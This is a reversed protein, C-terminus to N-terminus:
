RPAAPRARRSRRTLQLAQSRQIGTEIAALCRNFVARRPDAPALMARLTEVHDALQWAHLRPMDIVYERHPRPRMVLVWRAGELLTRMEVRMAVPANRDLLLQWYQRSLRITVLKHPM